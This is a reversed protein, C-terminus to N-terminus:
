FNVDKKKKKEGTFKRFNSKVPAPMGRRMHIIFEKENLISARDLLQRKSFCEM